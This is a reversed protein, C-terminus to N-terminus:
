PILSWSIGHREPRWGAAEMVPAVEEPEPIGAGLVSQMAVVNGPWSTSLRLGDLATLQRILAGLRGADGARIRFVVGSELDFWAEGDPWLRKLLVWDPDCADIESAPMDIKGKLADRWAQRDLAEWYAADQRGVDPLDIDLGLALAVATADEYWIASLRVDEPKM